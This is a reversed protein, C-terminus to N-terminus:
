RSRTPAPAEGAPGLPLLEAEFWRRWLTAAAERVRASEEESVALFLQGAEYSRPAREPLPQHVLGLERVLGALIWAAARGHPTRRSGRHVVLSALETLHLPVLSPAARALSALIASLEHRTADLFRSPPGGATEPRLPEPVPFAEGRRFDLRHQVEHAEVEGAWRRLMQAFLARHEARELEDQLARLDDVEHAPLRRRVTPLYREGLALGDPAQLVIGERRLRSQWGSVLEQRRALLRGLRRLRPVEAPLTGDWAQRGLRGARERVASQWASEPDRDEPHFLPMPAMNALAPGSRRVLSGELQDLRVVAAELEPSAYGLAARELNLHDLRRVRVVEEVADGARVRRRARVEYVFLSALTRSDEGRVLVSADVFLDLGAAQLRRNLVRLAAYLRSMAADRGVQGGLLAEMATTLGELGERLAGPRERAALREFLGNRVRQAEGFAEARAPAPRGEHRLRSWRNIRVVWEALGDGLTRGVGVRDDSLDPALRSAIGVALGALACLLLLTAWPPGPRLRAPEPPAQVAAAAQAPDSLEAGLTRGHALLCAVRLVHRAAAAPETGPAVATEAHARGLLAKLRRRALWRLLPDGEPLGRVAAAYDGHRIGEALGVLVRRRIPAPRM